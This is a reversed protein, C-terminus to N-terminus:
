RGIYGADTPRTAMWKGSAPNLEFRAASGNDQHVMAIKHQAFNESFHIHASPDVGSWGFGFLALETNLGSPCGVLYNYTRTLSLGLGRGGVSLDTQPVVPNGTACNVPWGLLCPREGPAGPDNTGFREGSNLEEEEASSPSYTVLISGVSVEGSVTVAHTKAACGFSRLRCISILINRVVRSSSFPLCYVAMNTGRQGGYGEGEGCAWITWDVGGNWGESNSLAKLLAVSVLCNLRRSLFCNELVAMTLSAERSNVGGETPLTAEGGLSLSSGHAIGENRGAFTWGKM